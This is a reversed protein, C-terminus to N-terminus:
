YFSCPGNTGGNICGNKCQEVTSMATSPDSCASVLVMPVSSRDPGCGAFYHFLEEAGQACAPTPPTAFTLTPCARTMCALCAGPDCVGSPFNTGTGNTECYTVTGSSVAGLQGVTCASGETVPVGADFSVTLTVIDACNGTSLTSWSTTSVAPQCAQCANGPNAGGSPYAVGGITCGTVCTGSVCGGGTCSTGDPANTWSQMAAGPQCTQCANTPNPTGAVSVTGGILCGPVCSAGECFGGGCVTGAAVPTWATSSAAVQCSECANAANVAGPAYMVGQITCQTACSGTTVPAYVCKGASLEGSSSIQCTFTNCPNGNNCDADTVCVSGTGPGADPTSSGLLRTPKSRSADVSGPGGPGADSGADTAQSSASSCGSAFAAAALVPLLVLRLAPHIRSRHM